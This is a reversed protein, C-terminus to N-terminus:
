ESPAIAKQVASYDALIPYNQIIWGTTGKKRLKCEITLIGSQKVDLEGRIAVKIRHFPRTENFKFEGKGLIRTDGGPYIMTMEFEYADDANDNPNKMWVAMAHIPDKEVILTGKTAGEPLPPIPIPSFELKEIIRYLSLLNSEVDQSSM